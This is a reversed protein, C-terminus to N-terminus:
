IWPMEGARPPWAAVKEGRQCTDMRFRVFSTPPCYAAFFRELISAFLYLHAGAATDEDFTVTLELGRAILGLGEGPLRTTVPRTRVDHIGQIQRSISSPNIPLYLRLMEQLGAKGHAAQALHNQTGQAIFAWQRERKAPPPLSPTPKRLLRAQKIVSHGPVTFSKSQANFPMRDPLNRNTCTLELVLMEVNPCSTPREERDLLAIKVDTGPDGPRVSPERILNWYCPPEQEGALHQISHLPPIPQGGDASPGSTRVADIAYVEYTGQPRNEALVPYVCQSQTLRIPTAGHGFLNVAPVCGLKLTEADLDKLLREYRESSGFRAFTFQIRLRNGAHRLRPHDLGTLDVFLFKEPFAFYELLLPFGPAVGPEPAFLAEHPEFGVPRLATRPLTVVHEPDDTGDSIRIGSLTTFLLEYLLSMQPTPGDLFFRLRDLGLGAFAMGGMTALDLTLVAAAPGLRRLYESDQTLDMRARELVLPWLTVDYCTRFQCTVGQDEPSTMRQYRPILYRGTIEPKGPDLALQLITASPIPRLVQPHLVGLYGETVEPLRDYIRHQLRASLFAFSELLREVQPEECQAADMQLRRAIKPHRAAFEGSLERLQALESEYYPLLEELM